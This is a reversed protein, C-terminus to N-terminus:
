PTPKTQMVPYLHHSLFFPWELVSPHQPHTCEQDQEGAQCAKGLASQLHIRLEPLFFCVETSSLAWKNISCLNVKRLDKTLYCVWFSWTLSAYLKIDNESLYFTLNRAEAWQEYIQLLGGRINFFVNFDCATINQFIVQASKYKIQTSPVPYLQWQGHQAPSWWPQHLLQSKPDLAPTNILKHNEHM